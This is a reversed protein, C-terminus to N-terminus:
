ECGILQRYLPPAKPTETEDCLGSLWSVTPPLAHTGSPPELSEGRAIAEWVLELDTLVQRASSYLQKWCKETITACIHPDLPFEGASFRRTIKDEDKFGDLHSFVEHVMMIVYLASGLAFLDTRISAHNAPKRPLYAKTPELSVGDLLIEGNASFHQGQFDALKLHLHLDLLINDHRLDCHLIRKSHVYAVAEALQICWALRRELSAEPRATLYDHLNSNPAFDLLLGDGTMLGRSQVIRPRQSDPSRDTDM